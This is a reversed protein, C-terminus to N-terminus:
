SCLKNSKTSPVGFDVWLKRLFCYPFLMCYCLKMFNKVSAETNLSAFTVLCLCM